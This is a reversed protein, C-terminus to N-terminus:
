GEGEELVLNRVRVGGWTCGATVRFKGKFM